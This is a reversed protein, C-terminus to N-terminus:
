HLLTEPKEIPLRLEIEDISYTFGDESFTLNVVELINQKLEDMNDGQTGIFKDDIDAIASFGDEEKIVELVIKPKKM